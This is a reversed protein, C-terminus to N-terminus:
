FFCVKTEMEVSGIYSDPRLLIHDIMSGKQYTKQAQAKKLERDNQIEPDKKVPSLNLSDEAESAM